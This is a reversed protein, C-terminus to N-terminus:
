QTSNSYSLFESLDVPAFNTDKCFFVGYNGFCVLMERHRLESRLKEEFSSNSKPDAGLMSYYDKYNLGLYNLNNKHMYDFIDQTVTKASKM